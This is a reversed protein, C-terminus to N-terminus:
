KEREVERVVELCQRTERVDHTRIFSAGNLAAIVTAALTPPLRDNTTLGEALALFSKRSPSVLVLALDCFNRLNQLIQFSYRPDSSVFHGLGPDVIIQAKKVGAELVLKLRQSLFDHVKQVVNKYMKKEITTRPSADKSYMMVYPVGTEAILTFMDADCRGAMIDNIMEAGSAIVEKAVASKWTDVSIWLSPFVERIAKVLPIVRSLEEDISVDGSGPGTSEGGIEVIDVGDSVLKSVYDLASEITVKRSEPVYSDPTANLVGVIRPYSLDLNKTRSSLMM